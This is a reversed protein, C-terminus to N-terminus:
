RLSPLVDEEYFELAPGQEPGIQHFYVHDYGADIAQEFSDIHAQPDPSTITASEDIDDKDVM